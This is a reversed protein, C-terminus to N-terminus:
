GRYELRLIKSEIFIIITAIIISELLSSLFSIKAGMGLARLILLIALFIYLIFNGIGEKLADIGQHVVLVMVTMMLLSPLSIILSSLIIRFINILNFFYKINLNPINDFIYRLSGYVGPLIGRTFYVYFFYKKNSM